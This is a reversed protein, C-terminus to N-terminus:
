SREEARDLPVGIGTFVPRRKELFADVAERHDASTGTERMLRTEYVLAKHLSQTSSYALARRIAGYAVTPGRAFEEALERVRIALEDDPVVESVLGLREAEVAPITRPRLLLEKAKALGVLRPLSWTSGSDASLGIGAFALNFGASEAAIRYDCLFTLAAGAGAAVGNVAAIVPKPMTALLEAIPSYHDRVTDWTAVPDADLSSQLERLDQGVSFARGTGTLVVARVREDDAVTRLSSLLSNKLDLDLANMAEPRNLELVAVGAGMVVNLSSM